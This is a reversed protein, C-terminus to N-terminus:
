LSSEANSEQFGVFPTKDENPFSRKIHLEICQPLRIRMGRSLPGHRDKTILQYLYFRTKKNSGGTRLKYLRGREIYQEAFNSTYYPHSGCHSCISIESANSSASTDAIKKHIQTVQSQVKM